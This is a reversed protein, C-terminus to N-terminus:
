VPFTTKTTTPAMNTSAKTKTQEQTKTKSTSSTAEKAVNQKAVTSPDLSTQGVAASSEFAIIFHAATKFNFSNISCKIMREIIGATFNPSSESKQSIEDAPFVLELYKIFKLLFTV